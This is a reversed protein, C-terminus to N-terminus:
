SPDDGPSSDTSELIRTAVQIAKRGEEAIRAAVSPLDTEDRLNTCKILMPLNVGTVIEVRGEELVSLALNTPTGGFMDTMLLVGKGTDVRQIAESLKKEAVGVDDHWGLSLAGLGEIEGVIMTAANVLEEAFRGHSIVLVGVM